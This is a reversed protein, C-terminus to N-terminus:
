DATSGAWAATSGPGQLQQARGTYHAVLGNCRQESSAKCEDTSGPAPPDCGDRAQQRAIAADSCSTQSHASLM